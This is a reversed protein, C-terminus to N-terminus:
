RATVGVGSRLSEYQLAPSRSSQRQQQEDDNQQKYQKNALSLSYKAALAAPSM